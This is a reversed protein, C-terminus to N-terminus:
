RGAENLLQRVQALLDEATLEPELTVGRRSPPEIRLQGSAAQRLQSVDRTVRALM